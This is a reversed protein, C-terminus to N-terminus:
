HAPEQAARRPSAHPDATRNPRLFAVGRFDGNVFTSIPDIGTICPWDMLQRGIGAEGSHYV